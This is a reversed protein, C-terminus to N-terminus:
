ARAQLRRPPARWSLVETAAPAADISFSCEPARDSSGREQHAGRAAAQLGFSRDFEPPGFFDRPGGPEAHFALQVGIVLAPNRARRSATGM